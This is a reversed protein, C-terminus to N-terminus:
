TYFELIKKVIVKSANAISSKIFIYYTGANEIFGTANIAGSITQSGITEYEAMILPTLVNNSAPSSRDSIAIGLPKADGWEYRIYLLTPANLTFAGVNSYVNAEAPSFKQNIITVPKIKDHINKTYPLISQNGLESKQLNNLICNGITEVTVNATTGAISAGLILDSSTVSQAVSIDKAKIDAM